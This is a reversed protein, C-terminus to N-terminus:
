HLQEEQECQYLSMAWHSPRWTGAANQQPTGSAGGVGLTWFKGCLQGGGSGGMDTFLTRILSEEVGAGLVIPVWRGLIECWSGERWLGDRARQGWNETGPERDGTRRGQSETGPEGDGARWRWGETGPEGDGTRRGRSETGPEGDGTRRWQVAAGAM